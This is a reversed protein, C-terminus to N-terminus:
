KPFYNKKATKKKQRHACVIVFQSSDINVQEYILHYFDALKHFHFHARVNQLANTLTLVNNDALFIRPHLPNNTSENAIFNIFM